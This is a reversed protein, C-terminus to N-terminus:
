KEFEKLMQTFLEVPFGVVNSRSGRIKEILQDDNDQVAYAGAKDMHKGAMEQLQKQSLKRAKCYTKDVGRVFTHSALHILTVGTYVTQWTGNLKNLIRM